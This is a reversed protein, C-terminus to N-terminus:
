RKGQRNWNKKPAFREIDCSDGHYAVDKNLQRTVLSFCSNTVGDDPVVAGSAVAVQICTRGRHRNSVNKNDAVSSFPFLFCCPQRTDLPM